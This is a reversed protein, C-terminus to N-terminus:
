PVKFAKYLYVLRKLQPDYDVYNFDAAYSDSTSDYIYTHIVYDVHKADVNFTIYTNASRPLLVILSNPCAIKAPTRHLTHVLTIDEARIGKSILLDKLLHLPPTTNM